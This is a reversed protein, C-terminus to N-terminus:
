IFKWLGVISLYFVVEAIQQTAGLCDGTYGGIHKKFYYGLYIKSLYTIPLIILFQWKSFLCFPLVAFLFSYLMESFSLRSNAIPKSKSTELDQVYDHTHVFTSAIFRSTAHANILAILVLSHGLQNIELLLYFKLLLLLCMAIVGYAGIRSDKMIKLINEKGWGGGFADFVDTFGDEHFAGTIWVSAIMSLILSINAPFIAQFGWFILASLGGVIWGILPFYKRSKNLYEASHDVWSPCPIRTFFMLATFFYRIEKQM